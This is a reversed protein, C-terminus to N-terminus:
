SHELEARLEVARRKSLALLLQSVRHSSIDHQRAVDEISRGERMVCRWLQEARQSHKRKRM